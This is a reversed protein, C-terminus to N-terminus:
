QKRPKPLVLSLPLLLMGFYNMGFTGAQGDADLNWTAGAFSLALAAAVALTLRRGSSSEEQKSAIRSTVRDIVFFWLAALGLILGFSGAIRRGAFRSILLLVAVAGGGLLLVMWLVGNAFRKTPPPLESAVKEVPTM